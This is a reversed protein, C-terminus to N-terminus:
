ETNSVGRDVGSSIAALVILRLHRLGEKLGQSPSQSNSGSAALKSFLLLLSKPPHVLAGAAAQSGPSEQLCNRPPKYWYSRPLCLYVLIIRTGNEKKEAAIKRHPSITRHAKLDVIHRDTAALQKKNGPRAHDLRFLM